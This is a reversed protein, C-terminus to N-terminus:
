HKCEALTRSSAVCRTVGGRGAVVFDTSDRTNRSAYVSIAVLVGVYAVAGALIIM